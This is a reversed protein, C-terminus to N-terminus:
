QLSNVNIHFLDAEFHKQKCKRDNMPIDCYEFAIIFSLSIFITNRVLSEHFLNHTVSIHKYARLSCSNFLQIYKIM